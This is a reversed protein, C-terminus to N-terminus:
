AHSGKRGQFFTSPGRRRATRRILAGAGEKRDAALYSGAKQVLAGRDMWSDDEALIRYKFSDPALRNNLHGAFENAYIVPNSM